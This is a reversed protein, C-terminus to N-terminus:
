GSGQPFDNIKTPDIIGPLIDTGFPDGTKAVRKAKAKTAVTAPASFGRQLLDNLDSETYTPLLTIFHDVSASLADLAEKAALRLQAQTPSTGKPQPDSWRGGPQYLPTYSLRSIADEMTQATLAKPAEYVQCTLKWEPSVNDNSIKYSPFDVPYVKWSTETKNTDVAINYAGQYTVTVPAENYNDQGQIGQSAISFYHKFWETMQTLGPGYKGGRTSPANKRTWTDGNRAYDGRSERGFKGQVIFNDFNVSLIQVVQGAYTNTESTVLNYTWDVETPALRLALTPLEPHSFTIGNM